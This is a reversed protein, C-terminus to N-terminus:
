LASSPLAPGRPIAAPPRERLRAYLQAYTAASRDWSFDQEMARRRLAPWSKPKRYLALARRVADTLAVATPAQFSIGTGSQPHDTVDIVTDALGGVARVVPITGYRLAYLQNLGCPEFRSPMVTFDCGGQIRHALADDFGIHVALREPHSEALARLQRELEPQGNGLIVWNADTDLLQRFSAILLDLGKQPVLRTVLGILPTSAGRPLGFERRLATKCKGKGQMAGLHYRVPLHEDTAPDWTATDIGNLIGFLDSSRDALVGELGCGFDETLVESAYTPSVTTLADAAVIGAKLYSMSEYYELYRPTAYSGGLGTEVLSELDFIGQYALNHLTLVSRTARFVPDDAYISKIYLPILASQWDHVHVIDCPDPRRRVLEMAGRCLAAFRRANDPYDVGLEGYLKSRDYLEPIDLFYTVVGQASLAEWVRATVVDQGLPIPLETGSLRLESRDVSRYLPTIVSVDNGALALAGSLGAVVDALGGTKSFPVVEPSVMTVRLCQTSTKM